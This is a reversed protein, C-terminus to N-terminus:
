EGCAADKCTSGYYPRVVDNWLARCFDRYPVAGRLFDYVLAGLMFLTIVSFYIVAATYITGQHKSMLVWLSAFFVVGFLSSFVFTDRCRKRGIAIMFGDWLLLSFYVWFAYAAFATITPLATILKLSVLGVVLVRIGQEVARQWRRQLPVLFTLHLRSVPEELLELTVYIRLFHFAMICTFAFILGKFVAAEGSAGPNITLDKWFEDSKSCFGLFIGVLVVIFGVLSVLRMASSLCDRVKVARQQGSSASTAPAPPETAGTGTM